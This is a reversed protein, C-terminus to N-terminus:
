SREKRSAIARARAGRSRNCLGWWGVRVLAEGVISSSMKSRGLTRETFAIPVEVIDYGARWTRWTMDVQFCYGASSIDSLHLERLVEARFARFGGTADHVPLRLMTRTYRNGGRSLLLRWAAWGRVEGGPVYRSGIVLDAEAEALASLLDPLQEPAHSGDADMEALVDYERELGWAFGALYAPGLGSKEARHLVNIHEDAAALRDALQGTGDPSSDDVVLIDAAPNAARTRALISELNEIEDFTPIVVLIRELSGTM